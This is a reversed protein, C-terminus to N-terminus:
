NQQHFRNVDDVSCGVSICAKAKWFFTINLTMHRLVESGCSSQPVSEKRVEKIQKRM